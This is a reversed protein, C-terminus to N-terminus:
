AVRPGIEVKKNRVAIDYSGSIYADIDKKNFRWERGFKVAKIRGDRIM